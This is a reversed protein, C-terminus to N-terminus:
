KHLGQMDSFVKKNDKGLFMRQIYFVTKCIQKIDLKISSLENMEANLRNHYTTTTLLCLSFKAECM